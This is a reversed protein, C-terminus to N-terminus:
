EQPALMIQIFNDQALVAQMLNKIDEATVSNLAEEYEADYDIGHELNLEIASQWYSNSIRSEPINKKLNELAMSMEEETPGNQAFEKLYKATLGSLKEAQEPNTDFQVMFTYRSYPERTAGLSSGVGYTGGEKERITKTYIMDLIYNAVKLTAIEKTSVPMYASWVQFVTKKPTQMEVNLVEESVGKAMQILNSENVKTAKKGKPLSGVYKEVLPKLTELDVNGVITLTAGAAGKFLIERYVREITELKAAELVEDNILLVRENGAYLKENVFKQFKFDPTNVLNPLVAKIQQIGTEYEEPDFRPDTFHLYMLQFATELDKPTSQGYIGHTINGIGPNVSVNKGSLMKSLTTGPFKSIGSNALYIGWVNDEFSPMDETPILTKGGKFELSLLVQDKKHQTPLVVVNVGNKLTWVTSGYIGTGTKKVKAGKLEKSILPENVSEEVNAQIEANKANTIIEALQAETPNALGEKEPGNYLVVMNEDSIISAAVQNLLAANIQSCIMQVVQLETAPDMYAENHYFANLLPRVFDANKRTSAAEAAKEYYSLIKATAREVEGDTFGFRKMKEVETMFAAFANAADGEKFSVNGFVAECSACLRGIGLSAGLFPTDPKATIDNFRERMIYSFYTKILEMMYGEVTNGFEKPMPEGKWLVEISSSTAEPDTIIGIIPEQNQPLKYLVKEKPNEPAPIDAFITKLKAEIQDVDVDGVVIVAQLDPRCWDRYFNTLSEYKFTKLQEEGGILTRRAYPTDGYYYPLSKEFMRWSANRRTRREELIVAREADIEEPDCTVFHSYDHLILLCSDIVSERAIPINNLMYQTQEFGTSANINRGFEAGISQLWELLMKDPFNKTGNFCMHELFHALGDQDDAEQYAGVDTALYFEARQAPQDNHRIYYTMGNELKGVRVEPDNPLPTQAFAVAAAIMAAISIFLRKMTYLNTKIVIESKYTRVYMRM